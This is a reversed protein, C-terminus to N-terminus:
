PTSLAPRTFADPILQLQVTTANALSATLV